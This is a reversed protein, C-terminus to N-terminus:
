SESEYYQNTEIVVMMTEKLEESFNDGKKGLNKLIIDDQTIPYCANHTDKDIINM